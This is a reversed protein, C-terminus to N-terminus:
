RIFITSLSVKRHPQGLERLKMLGKVVSDIIIELERGSFMNKSYQRKVKEEKLNIAEKEYLLHFRAQYNCYGTDAQKEADILM